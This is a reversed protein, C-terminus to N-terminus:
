RTDIIRYEGEIVEGRQRALRRRRWWTWGLLVAGGTLAVAILMSALLAFLFRQIM